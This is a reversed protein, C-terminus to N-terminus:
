LDGTEEYTQILEVLVDGHCPKPHCWCGLHKGKLSILEEFLNESKIKNIIYDRYQSIASDRDEEGKVKFPNAWISDKSPWRVKGEPTEIFVIGRRAIYVNNPDEM